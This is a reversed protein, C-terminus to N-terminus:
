KWTTEATASQNQKIRSCTEEARTQGKHLLSYARPSEKNEKRKEKIKKKKRMWANGAALVKQQEKNRKM